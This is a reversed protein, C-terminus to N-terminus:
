VRCLRELLKLSKKLTRGRQKRLKEPKPTCAKYSLRHMAIENAWEMMERHSEHSMRYQRYGNAYLQNLITCIPIIQEKIFRAQGKINIHPCPLLGKSLWRSTTSRNVGFIRALDSLSYTKTSHHHINLRKNSAEAISHYSAFRTPSLGEDSLKGRELRKLLKDKERRKKGKIPIDSLWVQKPM